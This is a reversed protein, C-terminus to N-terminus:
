RADFQDFSLSNDITLQQHNITLSRNGSLQGDVMLLQGNVIAELTEEWNVWKRVFEKDYLDNQILHNAIALLV